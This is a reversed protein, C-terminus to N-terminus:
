NYRNLQSLYNQNYENSDSYESEDEQKVEKIKGKIDEKGVKEKQRDLDGINSSNNNFNFYNYPTFNNMSKNFPKIDNSHDQYEGYFNLDEISYKTRQNSYDKYIHFIKSGRTIVLPNKTTVFLQSSNQRQGVLLLFKSDREQGYGYNLNNYGAENIHIAEIMLEYLKNIHRLNEIHLTGSYPNSELMKLPNQQFPSKIIQNEFGGSNTEIPSNIKEPFSSFQHTREHATLNSSQSFRKFCGPYTCAYPKEGTHIRLHTRLNFDLSFKKGCIDCRFPKEGTHVLLHRRLKSNDLFKKM